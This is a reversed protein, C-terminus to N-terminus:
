DMVGAHRGRKQVFTTNQQEVCTNGTRLLACIMNSAKLKALHTHTSYYKHDFWLCYVYVYVWGCGGM